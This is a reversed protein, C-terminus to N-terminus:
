EPKPIKPYKEPNQLYYEYWKNDKPVGVAELYIRKEFGGNKMKKKKQYEKIDKESLNLAKRLYNMVEQVDAFEEKLKEIDSVDALENAEEAVKIALEKVYDSDNLVKVGIPIQGNQKMSDVIKDRILKEFKFYKM